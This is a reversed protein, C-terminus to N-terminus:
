SKECEDPESVQHKICDWTLFQRTLDMIIKVQRMTGALRVNTWGGTSQSEASDSGTTPTDSAQSRIKAVKDDVQHILHRAQEPLMPSISQVQDSLMIFEELLTRPLRVFDM